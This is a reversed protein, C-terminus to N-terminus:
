TIDGFIERIDTNQMEEETAVSEFIDAALLSYGGATFLDYDKMDKPGPIQMCEEIIEIHREYEVFRNIYTM